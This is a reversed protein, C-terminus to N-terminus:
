LCMSHPTGTLLDHLRRWWHGRSCHRASSLSMEFNIPLLWWLFFCLAKYQVGHGFIGPIKRRNMKLLERSAEINCPLEGWNNYYNLLFIVINNRQYFSDCFKLLLGQVARAYTFICVLLVIAYKCLRFIYDWGISYRRVSAFGPVTCIHVNMSVCM